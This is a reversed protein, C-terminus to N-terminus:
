VPEFYLETKVDKGRLLINKSILRMEGLEETWMTDGMNGDIYSACTLKLRKAARRSENLLATPATKAYASLYRVRVQPALPDHYEASYAGTQANQVTVGSLMKYPCFILERATVWDPKVTKPVYSEFHVGGSKDTYPTCNLYRESFTQLAEFCSVGKEVTLVGEVPRRDGGVAHLGLPMLYMRELLRLSPLRLEMPAAENDLLLAARSRLFFVETRAGNQCKVRHEDVIGDFLVAGDKKLAAICAIHRNNEALRDISVGTFYAYDWLSEGAKARYTRGSVAESKGATEVFAFTYPVTNKEPVGILALESLVAEFPRHGPLYLTDTEGFLAELERYVAMANEGTFHGKGAVRAKRKGVAEVREEGDVGVTERLLCARELKLETPNVPFVFSGFQMTMLNM